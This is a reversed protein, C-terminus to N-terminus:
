CEAPGPPGNDPSPLSLFMSYVFTISNSLWITFAVAVIVRKREWLAYSLDGCDSSSIDLSSYSVHASSDSLISILVCLIWIGAPGIIVLIV